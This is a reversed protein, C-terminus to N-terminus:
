YIVVRSITQLVAYYDLLANVFGMMKMKELLQEHYVCKVKTLKDLVTRTYLLTDMIRVFLLDDTGNGLVPISEKWYKFENQSCQTWTCDYMRSLLKKMEKQTQPLTYLDVHKLFYFEVRTRKSAIYEPSADRIEKVHNLHKSLLLSLELSSNANSIESVVQRQSKKGLYLIM